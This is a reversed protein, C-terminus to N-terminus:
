RELHPEGLTNEAASPAVANAVPEAQTVPGAQPAPGAQAAEAASTMYVPGTPIKVKIGRTLPEAAGLQANAALIRDAAVGYKESLVQITDGDKAIHLRM